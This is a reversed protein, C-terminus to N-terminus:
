KKQYKWNRQKGEEIWEVATAMRKNRTEDTKAEELWMIYEKKCSPSFSNFNKLAIKNKNLAKSFYAPTALTKPDAPKRKEVRVGAENLKMAEHIYGIMTKNSPLDKLSTIRGLHGMAREGKANEMLMKDEMLAAKWFGFACHQKFAAMNCLMGKYEFHPASWKIKEAVDPCAKHVIDRLHELIPQAFDASKMIYADVGKERKGM